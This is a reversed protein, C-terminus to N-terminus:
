RAREAAKFSLLDLRHPVLRDGDKRFAMALYADPHDRHHGLLVVTGAGEVKGAFTFGPWGERPLAELSAFTAEPTGTAVTRLSGIQGKAGRALVELYAGNLANFEPTAVDVLDKIVAAMQLGCAVRLAELQPGQTLVPFTDGLSVPASPNGQFRRRFAQVTQATDQGVALPPYTTGEAWPRHGGFPPQGDQRLCSGTVVEVEVLRGSGEFRALLAVDGWPNYFMTPLGETGEVVLSTEFFFAWGLGRNVTPWLLTDLEPLAAKVKATARRDFTTGADFRAQQRFTRAAELGPDLKSGGLLWWGLAGLALLSIGCGWLCGHRKRPLPKIPPAAAPLSAVRMVYAGIQLRDGDQLWAAGLLPQGNLWTGAMGLAQVMWQGQELRVVAHHAAIGPGQLVLGNDPAAGLTLPDSLAVQTGHGEFILMASGWM